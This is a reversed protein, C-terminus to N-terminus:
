LYIDIINKNLDKSNLNLENKLAENIFLLFFNSNGKKHKFNNDSLKLATSHAPSKQIISLLEPSLFNFIKMM